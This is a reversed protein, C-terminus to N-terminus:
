TNSPQKQKDGMRKRGPSKNFHKEIHGAAFDASAGDHTMAARAVAHANLKHMHAGVIAGAQMAEDLLERFLLAQSSNRDGGPPELAAGERDVGTFNFRM